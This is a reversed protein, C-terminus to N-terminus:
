NWNNKKWKRYDQRLTGRTTIADKGTEEEDEEVEEVEGELLEDIKNPVEEEEEIEDDEQIIEEIEEEEEEPAEVIGFEVEYDDIAKRIHDGVKFMNPKKLNDESLIIEGNLTTTYNYTGKAIKEVENLYVEKYEFPRMKQAM